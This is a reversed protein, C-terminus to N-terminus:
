SMQWTEARKLARLFLPRLLKVMWPYESISEGFRAYLKSVILGVISEKAWVDFIWHRVLKTRLDDWGGFVKAAIWCKGTGPITVPNILGGVGNLVGTLSQVWGPSANTQANIDGTQATTMGQQGQVNTNYLSNLLNLGAMRQQNQFDANQIQIQGAEQGGAVGKNMALADQAGATNAQNGTRATTRNIDAGASGFAANVGGMGANTIAALTAPDYGKSNILSQAEPGLTGLEGGARQGYQSANAAATQQAQKAENAAARPM